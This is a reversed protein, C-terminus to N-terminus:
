HLTPKQSSVAFIHTDCGVFSPCGQSSPRNQKVPSTQTAPDHTPEGFRHLSPTPHVLSKQSSTISAHTFVGFSEFHGSSPNNQLPVCVQWGVSPQWGPVLGQSAEHTQLSDVSEHSQPQGAIGQGGEVLSHKLVTQM